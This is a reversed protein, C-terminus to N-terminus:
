LVNSVRSFAEKDSDLDPYISRVAIHRIGACSIVHALFVLLARRHRERLQTHRRGHKGADKLEDLMPTSDTEFTNPVMAIWVDESMSTKGVWLMRESPDFGLKAHAMGFNRAEGPSLSLSLEWELDCNHNPLLAGLGIGRSVAVLMDLHNANLTWHLMNGVNSPWRVM